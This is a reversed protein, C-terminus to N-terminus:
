TSHSIPPRASAVGEAAPPLLVPIGHLVPYRPGAPDGQAVLMPRGEVVEPHLRRSTLPCRLLELAGPDIGDPSSTPEIRM